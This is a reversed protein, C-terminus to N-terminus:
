IARGEVAHVAKTTKGDVTDMFIGCVHCLTDVHAIFRESLDKVEGWPIHPSSCVADKTVAKHIMRNAKNWLEYESNEM